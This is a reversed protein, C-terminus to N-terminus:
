ASTLLVHCCTLVLLGDLGVQVVFSVFHFCFPPCPLSTFHCSMFHIHFLIFCVHVLLWFLDLESLLELIM